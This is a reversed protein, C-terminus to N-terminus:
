PADLQWLGSEIGDQIVVAIQGYGEIETEPLAIESGAMRAASVSAVIDEVLVYHRVIAQEDDRLPGRIGIMGGGVLKATRAMGLNPDAEGFTVGYIQSYLAAVGNVNPTVIELYQITLVSEQDSSNEQASVTALKM